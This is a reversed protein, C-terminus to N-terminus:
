AREMGLREFVTDLMDDDQKSYCEGLGIQALSALDRAVSTLMCTIEPEGM